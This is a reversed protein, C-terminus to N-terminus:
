RGGGRRGPTPTVSRDRGRNDGAMIEALEEQSLVQPEYAIGRAALTRVFARLHNRSGAELTAVIAQLEASDTTAVLIRLDVIDQEEVFAGVKLAADASSRGLDILADYRAQVEATLYRGAETETAVALGAREALLELAAQHRAEARQINDFVLLDWLEGLSRYIEGAMREEDIQFQLMTAATESLILSTTATPLNACVGTQTKNGSSPRAILVSASLIFLISLHNNKMLPLNLQHFGPVTSQNCCRAM